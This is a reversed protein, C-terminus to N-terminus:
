VYWDLLKPVNWSGTELVVIDAVAEKARPLLLSSFSVAGVWGVCFASFAAIGIPLKRQQGWVEWDYWGASKWGAGSAMPRRFLFEEELVLVFFMITWYGMLALFDEFIDYFNNRGVCALVTYVVVVVVTWVLRPIALFWSGLMQVGLAASYTGPINNSIQGLAVIVACFKGFTGLPTFAEAILAGASVDNATAWAPNTATGSALGVGLLLAFVSAVGLGLLTCLFVYFRSTSTPFYVFFDCSSGSWALPASM